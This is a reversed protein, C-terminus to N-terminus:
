CCNRMLLGFFILFVGLVFLLICVTAIGYPLLVLSIERFGMVLSLPVSFPISIEFIRSFSSRM